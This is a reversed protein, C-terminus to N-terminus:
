ASSPAVDGTQRHRAALIQGAVIAAALAGAVVITMPDDRLKAYVFAALVVVDLLVSLAPVWRKADIEAHLRRLVGWQIAIDMTLYLVLGMSAIQSLDFLVTVIIALAGTILLPQRDVGVPLRPAQGMDQLMAYLRSVSFLSALLGSLTAVVAVVATLTVGWTGFLPDAAEALAYDRAAIAGQAGLSSAVSVTILLYIATCLAISIAISRAINRKPDAVDDGQNTITTFGKYALVSLGIGALVDVASGAGGDNQSLLGDTSTVAVGILGAIALAAIGLIKVAATTTASGEVLRNGVLNVLVAATIAVVGLAPVLVASDELEFPRLLYTGFTRALLSEAVVMSVYMFVSFSGAIAGPGYASKLLMAIGGSSPDVSSYRVYAYSSVGAVLAGGAFALPFLSGALGAVQGVLAFIGAGIMVGTGLSVSGTLSLKQSESM